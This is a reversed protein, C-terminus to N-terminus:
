KINLVREFHKINVWIFILESCIDNTLYRSLSSNMVIILKYRWLRRAWQSLRTTKCPMTGSYYNPILDVPKTRFLITIVFLLSLTSLPSSISVYTSKIACWILSCVIYIVFLFVTPSHAAKDCETIEESEFEWFSVPDIRKFSEFMRIIAWKLQTSSESTKLSARGSGNM